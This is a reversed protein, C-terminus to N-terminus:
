TIVFIVVNLSNTFAVKDPFCFTFSWVSLMYFMYTISSDAFFWSKKWSLLVVNPFLYMVVLILDPFKKDASGADSDGFFIM